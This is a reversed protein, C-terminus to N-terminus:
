GIRAFKINLAPAIPLLAPERMFLLLMLVVSLPDWLTGSALLALEKGPAIAIEKMFANTHLLRSLLLVALLECLPFAMELIPAPVLITIETM